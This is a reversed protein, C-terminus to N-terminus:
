SGCGLGFNDGDLLFFVEVVLEVVSDFFEEFVLVRVFFLSPVGVIGVAAVVPRGVVLLGVRTLAVFLTGVAALNSMTQILSEGALPVARM